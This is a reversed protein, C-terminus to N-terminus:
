GTMYQGTRSLVKDLVACACSASSISKHIDTKVISVKRRDKLVVMDNTKKECSEIYKDPIYYGECGIIYKMNGTLTAMNTIGYALMSAMEEFVADIEAPTDNKYKECCEEFTLDEGSAERLKETLSLVSTYANVCGRRGCYCRPGKYDITTHGFECNFGSSSRYLDGKAIIGSGVRKSIGLFTFESLNKGKGIYLETLAACDCENLFIVPLDYREELKDVIFIDPIGFAPPFMIKGSETDVPGAAGVGIGLINEGKALPLLEDMLKILSDILTLPNDPLASRKTELIALNLKCLSVELSKECIHIGILKPARESLGLLMPNRGKGSVLQKRTEEIIGEDIFESIINTTAMKSLGTERAIDIRSSCQGTLLLKLILKRNQIKLTNNNIGADLM